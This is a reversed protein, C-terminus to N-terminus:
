WSESVNDGDVDRADYPYSYYISEFDKLVEKEESLNYNACSFIIYENTRAIGLFYVFSTEHNLQSVGKFSVMNASYGNVEFSSDKQYTIDSFYNNRMTTANQDIIYKLNDEGHGSRKMQVFSILAKKEQATNSIVDSESLVMEGKIYDVYQFRTNKYEFPVVISQADNPAISMLSQKVNQYFVKNMKPVRAEILTCTKQNGLLLLFDTYGKEINMEIFVARKGNYKILRHEQIDYGKFLLSEKSCNIAYKDFGATDIPIINIFSKGSRSVFGNINNAWFFSQPVIMKFSTGPINSHQNSVVNNLELVENDEDNFDISTFVDEKKLNCGGILLSLIIPLWFKIVVIKKVFICCFLAGM